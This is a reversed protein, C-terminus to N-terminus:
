VKAMAFVTKLSVVITAPVFMILLSSLISRLSNIVFNNLSLYKLPENGFNGVIVIALSAMLFTISNKDGSNMFGVILGIIVLATYFLSGAQDLSKNFLGFIVALIVGVLFAYAGVLNEKSKVM